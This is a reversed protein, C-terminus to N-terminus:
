VLNTVVIEGDIFRSLTSYEIENRRSDIEKYIENFEREESLTICQTAISEKPKIKICGYPTNSEFIEWDDDDLRELTAKDM